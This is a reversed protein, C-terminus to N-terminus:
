QKDMLRTRMYSLLLVVWKLEPNSQVDSWLLPLFVEIAMAVMVEAVMLLLESPMLWSAVGKQPIRTVKEALFSPAAIASQQYPLFGERHHPQFLNRVAQETTLELVKRCAVKDDNIRLFQLHLHKDFDVLM